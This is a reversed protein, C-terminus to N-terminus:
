GASTEGLVVRVRRERGDDVLDIWGDEIVAGDLEVRAVGRSVTDPNEVEIRYLTGGVRYEIVFGKWWHPVCPDIRVRSGRKTFGLISELAVRYMWSASGTYWSWGGRGTHPAVAYVDAAVVYPEVKYRAVGARTSTHNVPNLMSFLEGARDGDGLMAYALVVWVAAHTYQGGNERVGPVYGKIYGPELASRDFPPTLLKVLRDGRHVLLEDVSSMARRQRDPAGGGSIVSWSQALSDIRCESGGATGLPTGDDFFARLYWDGDWAHEDAAKVIASAHERYRTSREAEGRSDCVGAFRGLVTSLFWAMWVSEGQGENGVRNMGDNWDGAGMLPLGHEGVALSREIARVCHEFISGRERSEDPILYADDEGPALPRSEIFGVSEDFISTDGSVDAYHMAVFPLWLLDDSIRTRVGRGTPPHWWHQVDGEVFQRNAARLIHERAIAPSAYVAAAVDQLQDRFGYAGGSQYFGSRAWVRCGITQYPLWRNVLVDLGQDPTEVRISGVLANWTRHTADLAEHVAAPVRYREILRRADALDAAEGLVFVVETEAGAEIVVRVELATCADLGAGVQGSLGTRNLANPKALTGNRGIFERREATVSRPRPTADAFAVQGAFENNYHNRALLAGTESDIETVIFPGSAERSVGLALTAYHMVTLRRSESGTNRLRLRYVKVPDEPPVFLTLESAIGHATFEFVSYGQGHRVTYAGPLRIPSPTPTWAAGSDDDRLYVAESVPDSVSDNSWPTLRNERSNGAWTYGGGSETVVFGFGPNAVVNSWPAPTTQGDGLVIIYEHGDATFGGTGNWFELRPQPTPGPVPEVPARRPVFDAKLNLKRPKREIQQALSGRGGVLVARAVTFLLIRDEDPMLDARRVFVGGSSDLLHANLSSRVAELLAEQVEQQYSTAHENLIVLDSALGRLRWLGHARLLQRVLPVHDVESVRAVVVPLDGSIGYAWLGSQSRRNRAIIEPRARLDPNTYLLRAALRLATQVEGPSMGLHRLEVQADTWALDSARAASGADSYKQGLGMAQDRSTAFATTFLVRAQERPGLRIRRRLCFIPDLVAGDTNSLPRNEAVAIPAATSRNRGIFRARDTEFQPAGIGSGEAASVHVAWVDADSPQRRRRTALIAGTGIVFETQVFLNSFARHSHDAAPTTLVVEGYSTIDLDRTEGTLNRIRIDRVEADDETSVSVTTHTEIGNDERRFEAKALSFTASYTVPTAMTPQYATSWVEASSVDRLYCFQGWNDCTVDERWRTIAIDGCRSYGGGATTLMVSYSGNSLLHVRPTSLQTSEFYRTVEAPQTRLLQDAVDSNVGPLIPPILRPSRESLLLEYASVAPVAHFRNQMRNGLMREGLALLTMGQHHAMFTKVLAFRQGEETRSPTFDLSEYFGYRGRAGKAELRHLNAVAANEFLLALATAYPAIVLEDVSGRRLGLEPVGFPGYQYNRQLDRANYAAESVGWPVGSRRGYAIQERVAARCTRDLLTGDFSRMVLSPMLYEFMSGSWSILGREKGMQTLARGLHHWHEVPADGKAIAVYSALRAESALLDYYSSDLRATDVSYGISFLKRSPDFLFGFDMEDVLQGCHSALADFRDFLRQCADEAATSTALMRALWADVDASRVAGSGRLSRATEALRSAEDLLRRPTQSSGVLFGRDFHAAVESPASLLLSVWPALITLDREHTRVQSSLSGAWRALTEVEISGRATSIEDVTDTIAVELRRLRALLEFWAQMDVPRTDLARRFETCEARLRAIMAPGSWHDAAALRACEADLFGLTDELGTVLDDTFLPRDAAEVCAQKLVLLHGALNGSDVTSVYRPNLPELTATDYWNLFHGEVRELKKASGLTLESREVLEFLGVYGFDRAALNALLALGINTPSTRRAVVPSPDEQFNDPPLWHDSESVFREFFGWTSRAVGRLYRTDADSLAVRAERVPRSVYAAIAPSAVWALLIPAAVILAEPRLFVILLTVVVAAAVAYGMFRYASAIRRMDGSRESEAATVWELLGRRTVFMRWCVRIIADVSVSAQHPHFAIALMVRATNGAVDETVNRVYSTLMSRGPAHLVASLLQAYVPFAVVVLTLLTWLLPSGPLVTWGAVLLALAAPGVLSRRLNDLLKWRAMGPLVNRQRGTKSPTRPLLWGAIQWDGRTWRHKRKTYVDYRSPYDDFLEIDTVLATRAYSGEFLDHSLLSNDPVRDDLSERFARVDYIGKGVFSGEGFLDQYVDSVATTYPDVGGYGSFIRSFRSRAYADLSVSVRPQLIGYGAVVRRTAPDIRAHNLPHALTCVLRRATDPPLTTDADLTIVYRVDTLVSTEGEIDNFSTTTDGALWSNFEELKGRKREWGMWVGDMPNFTRARHFLFFGDPGHAENLERIGRRALEVLSRDNETHEEAADTFDSLIAFHLHDDNNGLFRVELKDLAERVDDQNAFLIPVVVITRLGTPIGESADLKPLVRPSLYLTVLYNVISVALDGLPMLTLLGVVVLAPTSAGAWSAYLLTLGVLVITGLVISGVFALAAHRLVTRRIREAITASYDSQRELEELGADVLYYGVHRLREDGDPGAAASRALDIAKRAVSAEDIPSRKAIREVHRRYLDRTPFDLGLYHGSPDDRLIADVNSLREFFESWDTATIARMSTIANGVSVQNAAQTQRERRLAEDASTGAASLRHELWEIAPDLEDGQDRLRQLMEAVFMTTPTKSLTAVRTRMTSQVADRSRAAAAILEDVLADATEIEVRARDVQTALQALREVLALRLMIPVAWLEGITLGSVSQQARVCRELTELEFHGDTHAVISAVLAYVRPLGDFEGGAVKPLTRYYKWPLDVACERLQDQIVHFNNLVWEASFSVPQNKRVAAATARHMAELTQRNELLRRPLSDARGAGEAIRYSGALTVVFQELREVGLLEGPAPWEARREDTPSDPGPVSLTADAM